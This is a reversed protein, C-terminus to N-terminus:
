GVYYQDVDVLAGIEALFLVDDPELAFGPGVPDDGIYQVIRLVTALSSDAGHLAKVGGRFPRLRQLVDGLLSSLDDGPSGYAHL